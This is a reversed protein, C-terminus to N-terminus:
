ENPRGLWKQVTKTEYVRIAMWVVTLVTAIHPLWGLLTGLLAGISVTDCTRNFAMSNLFEPFKM